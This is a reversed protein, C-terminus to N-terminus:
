LVCYLIKVFTGIVYMPLIYGLKVTKIFIYKRIPMVLLFYLKFLWLQHANIIKFIFLM